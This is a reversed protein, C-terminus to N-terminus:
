SSAHADRLEAAVAALQDIATNWGDHFGFKKHLAHGEEDAHLVHADYRTGDKKDAMTIIATMPLMPKSVPRCGSSLVSTFIIREQPAVELFAGPNASEQGDPGRMVTDFAGGPRLEFGRVETTWPKPCWWKELQRPDAWARWVLARPVKIHRTIKLDLRDSSSVTM